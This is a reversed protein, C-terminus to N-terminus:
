VPHRPRQSAAFAVASFDPLRMRAVSATHADPSQHSAAQASRFRRACFRLRAIPAAACARRRCANGHRPRATQLFREPTASLRACQLNARAPLSVGCRNVLKQTFDNKRPNRVDGIM